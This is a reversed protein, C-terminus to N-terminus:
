RPQPLSEDRCRALPSVVSTVMQRLKVVTASVGLM